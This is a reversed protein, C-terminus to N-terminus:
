FFPLLTAPVTIGSEHYPRYYCVSCIRAPRNMKRNFEADECLFRSKGPAKEYLEGCKECHDTVPSEIVEQGDIFKCSNNLYKEKIPNIFYQHPVEIPDGTSFLIYM